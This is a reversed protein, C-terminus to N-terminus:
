PPDSKFDDEKSVKELTMQILSLLRQFDSRHAALHDKTIALKFLGGLRGLDAMVKKRERTRFRKGLTIDRMLKAVSIGLQDAKQRLLIFEDKNLRVTYKIQRQRRESGSSIM